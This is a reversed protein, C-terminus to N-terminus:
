PGKVIWSMGRRGKDELSRITWGSEGVGWVSSGSAMGGRRGKDELSRITWGTEGVGWM